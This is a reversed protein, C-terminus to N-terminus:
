PLAHAGYFYGDMTFAVSMTNATPDIAYVTSSGGGDESQGIYLVGRTAVGSFGLASFPAGQVPVARPEDGLEIRWTQHANYDWFEFDVPEVGEPLRDPHFIKAFGIGTGQEATELETIAELGGTLSPISAYFGEEFDTGGPPIRLLCNDPAAIGQANAFMQVSYNRGDGLVYGYGAEDFVVRGGSICRDDEAVGVVSMAKPDLITTTVNAIIRAQEWDTWRAPIYVLGDPGVNTTWNELDYGDRDLHSLDVTDTITMTEPNWVIALLADSLVSVATTSDVLTNGFDVAALGYAALSMRTVEQLRGESDVSYKVWTPEETLGVFVSSGNVLYVANGPIEVGSENTLHGELAPVVSVYTTRGADSIVVSALVYGSPEGGETSTGDNGAEDNSSGGADGADGSSGAGDDGCGSAVACVISGLWCVSSLLRAHNM